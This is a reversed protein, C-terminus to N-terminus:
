WSRPPGCGLVRRTGPLAPADGPLADRDLVQEGPSPDLVRLLAHHADSLAPVIADDYVDAAGNWLRRVTATLDNM